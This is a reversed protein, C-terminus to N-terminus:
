IERTSGFPGGPLSDDSTSTIVSVDLNMIVDDFPFMELKPKSLPKGGVLRCAM